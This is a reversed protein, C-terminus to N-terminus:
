VDNDPPTMWTLYPLGLMSFLVANLIFHSFLWRVNQRITLLM